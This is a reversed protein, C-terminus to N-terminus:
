NNPNVTKYHRSLKQRAMNTTFSWEIRIAQHNREAQWALAEHELRDQSEIRRDLCQKGLAAFELEAMNLWSAHKPTFHFELQNCLEHAVACPLHEYFSGYTHTNLNDQVVQIKPTTPYHTRVLWEMFDAYDAKTRRARVQLYRQGRDIDYALLIVATGQRKYEYDQKHSHGPTMPLPALVDGLLQCPREDFCIRAVTQDASRAYLDLVDEM